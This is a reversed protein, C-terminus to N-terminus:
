QAFEQAKALGDLYRKEVDSFRHFWADYADTWTSYYQGGYCGGDQKNFSWVVFQDNFRCMVTWLHSDAEHPYRQAHIVVAGNTPKLGRLPQGLEAYNLRLGVLTGDNKMIRKREGFFCDAEDLVESRSYSGFEDHWEKTEKDFVFLTYYTKSTM